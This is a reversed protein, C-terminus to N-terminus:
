RGLAHAANKGDSDLIKQRSSCYFGRPQLQLFGPVLIFRSGLNELGEASKGVVQLIEVATIYQDTNGFLIPNRLARHASEGRLLDVGSL